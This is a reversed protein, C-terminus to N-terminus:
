EFDLMGEVALQDDMREGLWESQTTEPTIHIGAQEHTSFLAFVNGRYRKEGCDPLENGSPDTFCIAGDMTRQLGFGEEHVLRHHHRCLLILNNM